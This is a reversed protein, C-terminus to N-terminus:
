KGDVKDLGARLDSVLADLIAAQLTRGGKGRYAQARKEIYAIIRERQTM